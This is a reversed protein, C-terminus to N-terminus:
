IYSELYIELQAAAIEALLAPFYESGSNLLTIQNGPRFEAHMDRRVQRDACSSQCTAKATVLTASM